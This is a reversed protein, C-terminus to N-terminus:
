NHHMDELWHLALFAFDAFNIMCDGNLDGAIVTQCVPTGFYSRSAEATGGYAGMNIRAGNPFPEFGVLSMPDGADICPSTVGDRVWTQKAPNWRGAQSRLHYDSNAPNAFLPQADINGPGPWGGQINSYCVDPSEGAIQTPVNDWLICNSIRAVGSGSNQIAGGGWLATNGWFTCNVSVLNGWSNVLGGVWGGWNNTFICNAIVLSSQNNHMGGAGGWEDSSIESFVCKEIRSDSKFNYLGGGHGGDANYSCAANATFTCGTVTPSSYDSNLGGGDTASNGTFACNVILPASDGDLNIGGGFSLATNARFACNRVTPSGGMIYLGGGYCYENLYQFEESYAQGGVIVFGDLIATSDTGSGTTVHFSNEQRSPEYLLDEADAVEMDNGSLDGSLVTEYKEIDRANPDPQGFGAYGGKIAVGNKLQFTEKRGLNPRDSLVFDDPKYVGQAVWIEDGPSAMMLGDQLFNYADHWSTGDNAGAAGDDVYLITPPQLEYAPEAVYDPDGANICPSGGLLHNDGNAADVFLPDAGINGEGGLGGTLGQICCYNLVGPETEASSREMDPDPSSVHIQATETGPGSEDQNAWIISNTIRFQGELDDATCDIGGGLKDAANRAITCNYINCSGDGMAGFLECCIAGGNTGASNDTAACNYLEVHTNGNQLLAGGSLGASNGRLSCQYLWLRSVCTCDVHIYIAGGDELAENGTFECNRFVVKRDTYMWVGGGSETARNNRIVCDDYETYPWTVFYSPAIIGGGATAVNGEIVCSTIREVEYLGGGRGAYNDRVICDGMEKVWSCAGAFSRASNREIICNRIILCRNADVGGGRAYVASEGNANGGTIVFGDLVADRAAGSGYATLVHYSNESRTPEDALDAPDPVVADDGNLDGSLVTVYVRIDRADPDAHGFGAYGGKIVIQKDIAFSVERSGNPPEPRYVGQAVWIEDGDHAMMLGDQLFHYADYWSTGDNAGPADADVYVVGAAPGASGVSGIVFASIMVWVLGDSRIEM